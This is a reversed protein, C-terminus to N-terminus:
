QQCYALRYVKSWVKWRSDYCRTPLWWPCKEPECPMELQSWYCWTGRSHCDRVYQACWSPHLGRRLRCCDAIDAHSSSPENWQMLPLLSVAVLMHILSALIRISRMRSRMRIVLNHDRRIFILQTDSKTNSCRPLQCSTLKLFMWYHMEDHLRPRIQPTYGVELLEKFSWLPTEWTHVEVGPFLWSTNLGNDKTSQFDDLFISWLLWATFSFILSRENPAQITSFKRYEPQLTDVCSGLKIAILTTFM